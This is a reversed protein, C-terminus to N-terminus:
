AAACASNANCCSAALGDAAFAAASLKVTYSANAPLTNPPLILTRDADDQRYAETASDRETISWNFQFRAAAPLPDVVLARFTMRQSAKAAVGDLAPGFTTSAGAGM